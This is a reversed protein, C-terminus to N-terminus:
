PWEGLFEATERVLAANPGPEVVLWFREGAVRSRQWVVQEASEAETTSPQMGAASGLDVILGKGVARTREESFEALQVARALPPPVLYGGLEMPVSGELLSRQLDAVPEAGAGAMRMAMNKMRLMYRLVESGKSIPQWAVVRDFHTDMVKEADAYLAAGLRVLLAGFQKAGRSRAWEVVLRLDEVWTEWRADEFSGESDGTGYLDPVITWCGAEALARATDWVLRRSKNMEEGFAPVVLVARDTDPGPSHSVVLLRGAGGDIFTGGVSV